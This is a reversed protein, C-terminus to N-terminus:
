SANCGQVTILTTKKITAGNHSTITTPMKLQLKHRIHRTHYFIAKGATQQKVRRTTTTTCLNSTATLVSNSAAPLTLEVSSIPVDPIAKFYSSTIGKPSINTNSVQDITVGDGQLVLDMDPFAAGGHGVLIAPGTLAVPLLPTHAIATGVMSGTPCGAPNAAFQEETCALKLTSQRAVLIRPLEVRVSAINAQGSGSAIKVHLYAGFRRTHAAHTIASFSPKFALKKCGAVQFRSALTATQGTTSLTSATLSMAECSTPNLTFQPRTIEVNINHIDLPIGDLITPLPDSKVTVQATTPNVQLAARVVVAGLDFPGAIAPTVIVLSFPAGEYPGAFYVKGTVYFQAGSGAGVHAVGLESAAPCSPSSQELAGEDEHDRRQAQEIDAQPCEQVGSVNGVLGEPLTVDVASFRQAGDERSLKLVFPTYSGATASTTGAEFGPKNPASSESTPCGGGGALETIELPNSSPTVSADESASWPTLNTSLAYSGCTMPTSLSARSEGFLSVILDEFPLQPNQDFTTTLQGTQANAHVLGPLKIVVGSIPDYVAIYVALLSGFPNQHPAALYMAGELTHNLLPTKVTVTAIKAADPCEAPASKFQATKVDPEEAVDLEKFGTFGIQEETCVGLGDASSPNIVLGPPFTVTADKLEASQKGGPSEDQPVHLDVTLGTASDTQRSAGSVEISPAFPVESCGVIVPLQVHEKADYPPGQYADAEVVASQAGGCRTPMSLFAKEPVSSACGIFEKSGFEPYAKGNNPCPREELHKESAPDGWLTVKVGIIDGLATIDLSGANVGYDTGSRVSANIFANAANNIRAGFRAAIGDPPVLNFLPVYYKDAAFEGEEVELTGIQASPSCGFKESAYQACEPTAAPDGIYGPPLQVLVDKLTAMERVQTSNGKIVEDIPNTKFNVKTVWEYPHGGAQAYGSDSEDLPEFGFSEIGFTVFTDASGTTSGDNNTAVFRYHYVTDASLGAVAASATVESTGAGLADECPQKSADTWQSATFDADSVYEVYCSTSSGNPNVHAELTAKEVVAIAQQYGISPKESAFASPADALAVGIICTVVVCAVRLVRHAWSILDNKQIM